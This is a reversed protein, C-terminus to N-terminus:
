GALPLRDVYVNFQILKQMIRDYLTKAMNIGSLMDNDDHFLINVM